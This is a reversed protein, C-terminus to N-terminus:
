LFIILFILNKSENAKPINNDNWTAACAGLPHCCKLKLWSPIYPASVFLAYASNTLSLGPSFIITATISLPVSM